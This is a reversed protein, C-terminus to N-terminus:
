AKLAYKPHTGKVVKELEEAIKDVGSEYAPSLVKSIWRIGDQDRDFISTERRRQFIVEVVRNKSIKDVLQLVIAKRGAPDETQAM